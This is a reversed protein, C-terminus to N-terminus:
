ATGFLAVDTLAIEDRGTCNRRQYQIGDVSLGDGPHETLWRGSDADWGVPRYQWYALTRGSDLDIIPQGIEDPGAGPELDLFRLARFSRRGVTLDVLDASGGTDRVTRYSQDLDQVLRGSDQIRRPGTGGWNARFDPNGGELTRGGMTVSLFEVYEEGISATFGIRRGERADARGPRMTWEDIEIEFVGDQSTAAAVPSATERVQTLEGTERDYWAAGSVEGERPVVFWWPLEDCQVTQGTAVERTVVSVPPMGTPYRGKPHDVM